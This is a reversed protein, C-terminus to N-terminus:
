GGCSSFISKCRVYNALLCLTRSSDALVGQIGVRMPGCVCAFITIVSFIPELGVPPCSNAIMMERRRTYRLCCRECHELTTSRSMLVLLNLKPPTAWQGWISHNECTSNRFCDTQLCEVIMLNTRCMLDLINFFVNFRQNKKLLHDPAPLFPM